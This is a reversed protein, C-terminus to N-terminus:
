ALFELRERNLDVSDIAMLASLTVSDEPSLTDLEYLHTLATPERWGDSPGHGNPRMGIFDLEEDTLDGSHFRSKLCSYCARLGFASLDVHNPCEHPVPRVIGGSYSLTM